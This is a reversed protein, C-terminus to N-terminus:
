AHYGLCQTQLVRSISCYNDIIITLKVFVCVFQKQVQVISHFVQNLCVKQQNKILMRESEMRETDIDLNKLGVAM